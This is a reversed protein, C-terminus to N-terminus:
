SKKKKEPLLRLWSGTQNCHIKRACIKNWSLANYYLIYVNKRVRVLSTKIKVCVIYLIQERLLRLSISEFTPFKKCNQKCKAELEIICRNRKIFSIYSKYSLLSILFGFAEYYSKNQNRIKEQLPRLYKAFLLYPKWLIAMLASNCHHFGPQIPFPFRITNSQIVDSHICKKSKPLNQDLPRPLLPTNIKVKEFDM